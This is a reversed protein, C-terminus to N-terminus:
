IVGRKKEEAVKRARWFKEYLITGDKALAEVEKKASFFEKSQSKEMPLHDRKVAVYATFADQGYKEYLWYMKKLDMSDMEELDAGGGFTDNMNLAHWFFASGSLTDLVRNQPSKKFFGLIKNVLLMMM